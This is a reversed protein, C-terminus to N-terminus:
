PCTLARPSASLQTSTGGFNVWLTYTTGTKLGAPTPLSFGHIGNGIGASLLDQRFNNAPVTAVLVGGNYIDVNIPTNPQGSNWAWGSLATCTAADFFGQYNPSVAGCNISAPSGILGTASTEFRIQVSHAGGTM